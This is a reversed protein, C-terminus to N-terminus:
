NVSVVLSTKTYAGDVESTLAIAQLPRLNDIVEAPAGANQAAQLVQDEIADFDLYVVSEKSAADKVVSTFADSDGLGGNSSLKDAYGDNSAIVLGDDTEKKVVPLQQAGTGQQFLKEVKGYIEELADKDGTLRLGVGLQSFDPGQLASASLGQGDVAFMLNDGLVTELDNPLSLGTQSEFQQVQTDFDTGAQAMAKKFDDWSAALRQAGGAESIAFVTSDPLDVIKNDGHSIDKTDGYVASAVELHNSEFRLTVAARQYTSRLLDLGSRSSPDTPVQDSFLTIARDIDVWATAAGIDGLADMDDKFNSSDALSETSAAKAYQDAQDQTEAIVAYGGSFAVAGSDPSPDSGCSFLKKLGARAKDQDSVELVGVPVPETSGEAPPMGALAFTTGIWPKIDQDYSVDACTGSESELAREIITRRVDTGADTVGSADKFSPFHTLFRLANVKQQASPDLDFGVYFVADSPVAEAAQPGSATYRDRIYEVAFVGGVLVLAIVAVTALIM